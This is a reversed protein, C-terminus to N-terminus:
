ARRHLRYSLHHSDPARKFFSDLFSEAHYPLSHVSKHFVLFQHNGVDVLSQAFRGILTDENNRLCHTRSIGNVLNVFEGLYVLPEEILQFVDHLGRFLQMLPPIVVDLKGFKRLFQKILCLALSKRIELHCTSDTPLAIHLVADQRYALVALAYTDHRHHFLYIGKGGFIGCLGIVQIQRIATRRVIYVIQAVM